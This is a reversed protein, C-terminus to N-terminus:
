LTLRVIYICVYLYIAIYIHICVKLATVFSTVFTKQAGAGGIPVLIRIPRRDRARAKRLECDFEINDVLDQFPGSM